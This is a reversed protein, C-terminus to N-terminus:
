EGREEKLHVWRLRRWSWVFPVATPLWHPYKETDGPLLRMYGCGQCVHYYSADLDPHQSVNPAHQIKKGNIPTGCLPCVLKLRFQMKV